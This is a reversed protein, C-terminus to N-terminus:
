PHLSDLRESDERADLLVREVVAPRADGVPDAVRFACERVRVEGPQHSLLAAGTQCRRLPAEGVLAGLDREHPPDPIAAPRDGVVCQAPGPDGNAVAHAAGRRVRLRLDGTRELPHFQEGRTRRAPDLFLLEKVFVRSLAPDREYYAYLRDFAHVLQAALPAAAPMTAFIEEVVPAIDRQFLHVLLDEKKAFYLFLTGIGIDARAAIARTTTAEFGRRAFLARAAKEIRALKELKNRERRSDQAPETRLM